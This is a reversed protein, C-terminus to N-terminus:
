LAAHVTRAHLAVCGRAAQASYGESTSVGTSTRSRWGTNIQTPPSGAPRFYDPIKILAGSEELTCPAPTTALDGCALPRHRVSGEVFMGVAFGQLVPGDDFETVGGGNLEASTDSV